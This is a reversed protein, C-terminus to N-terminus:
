LMTCHVQTDATRTMVDLKPAIPADIYKTNLKEEFYDQDDDWIENVRYYVNKIKHLKPDMGVSDDFTPLYKVPNKKDSPDYSKQINSTELSFTNKLESGTACNAPNPLTCPFIKIHISQFPTASIKGELIWRSKNTINPCLGFKQALIEETPDNKYHQLM